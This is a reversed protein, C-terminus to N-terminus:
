VQKDLAKAYESLLPINFSLTKFDEEAKDEALDMIFPFFEVFQLLPLFLHSVIAM